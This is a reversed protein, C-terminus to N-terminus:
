TYKKILAKHWGKNNKMDAIYPHEKHYELYWSCLGDWSGANGAPYLKWNIEELTASSKALNNTMSTTMWNEMNDQGGRSVPYLHDVTPFLEWHASHSNSRGGGMPFQEPLADSIAYLVSPYVLKAGSYRDIFGDKIFVELSQFQTYSRKIKTSPIFPYSEKLIKSADNKNNELLANTVQQLTSLHNM